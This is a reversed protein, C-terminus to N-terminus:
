LFSSIDLYTHEAIHFSYFNLAFNTNHFFFGQLIPVWRRGGNKKMLRGLNIHVNDLCAFNVTFDIFLISKQALQKEFPQQLLYLLITGLDFDVNKTTTPLNIKQKM